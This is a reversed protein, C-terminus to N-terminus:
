QSVGILRFYLSVVKEGYLNTVSCRYLGALVASANVVDFLPSNSTQIVGIGKKEWTYTLPGYGHAHCALTVNGEPATTVDSPPYKLVPPEVTYLLTAFYFLHLSLYLFLNVIYACSRLVHTLQMYICPVIWKTSYV